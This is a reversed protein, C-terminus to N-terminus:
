LDAYLFLDVKCTNFRPENKRGWGNRTQLQCTWKPTLRLFLRTLLTDRADSLPSRVLEDIPRAVDLFFNEHDGKRWDYKSRHRFEVAFACDTNITWETIFNTFDWVKEQENWAIGGKISYSPRSWGVDLYYKPLVHSFARHGFYAYTYLDAVIAPCFASHGYLTFCNRVGMKLQNLQFYGDNIDFYFHDNLGTTPRTLGQFHVYPEMVHRFHSYERFLYSQGRMGYTLMGQGVADHHANNSYFIGIVGVSPTLTMNAIPFHPISSMTHKWAFRM